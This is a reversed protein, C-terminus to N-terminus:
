LADEDLWEAELLPFASLISFEHVFFGSSSFLM